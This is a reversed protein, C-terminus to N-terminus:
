ASGQGFRRMWPFVLAGRTPKAPGRSSAAQDGETSGSRDPTSRLEFCDDRLAGVPQRAVQYHLFDGDAREYSDSSSDEGGVAHIEGAVVVIGSTPENSCTSPGTLQIRSFGLRASAAPRVPVSVRGRHVPLLLSATRVGRPLAPSDDLARALEAPLRRLPTPRGYCSDGYLRVCFAMSGPRSPSNTVGSPADSRPATEARSCQSEM